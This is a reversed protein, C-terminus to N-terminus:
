GATNYYVGNAYTGVFKDSAKKISSNNYYTMLNDFDCNTCREQKSCHKEMAEDYIKIVDVLKSIM